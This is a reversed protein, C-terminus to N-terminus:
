DHSDNSSLSQRLRTRRSNVAYIHRAAELTKSRCLFRRIPLPFKCFTLQRRYVQEVPLQQYDDLQHQLKELRMQQANQYRAWCIVEDNKYERNVILQGVVEDDEQFHPWPWRIYARRLITQRACVASYAKTFLVAWSVRPQVLKRAAEVDALEFTREAPYLAHRPVSALGDFILNRHQPIPVWRTSNSM